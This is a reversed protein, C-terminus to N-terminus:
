PRKIFRTKVKEINYKKMAQQVRDQKIAHRFTSGEINLTKYIHSGKVEGQEMEAFFDIILDATTKKGILKEIPTYKTLKAGEYADLIHRVMEGDNSFVYFNVNEQKKNARLRNTEQIMNVAMDLSKFQEVLKDTYVYRGGSKKQTIDLECGIRGGIVAQAATSYYSPGKHLNGIYIANDAGVYDNSGRGGDFHKFVVDELDDLKKALIPAFEKYTVILTKGDHREVIRRCEAAINDLADLNQTISTKSLGYQDCVHFTVNSCDPKEIPMILNFDRGIYEPDIDGTGDLIFTNFDTIDYHLFYTSVISVRGNFANIEGGYGVAREFSRLVQLKEVGYVEGFNALLKRPLMYGPKLPELKHRGTEDTQEIVGSLENIVDFTKNVYAQRKGTAEHSAQLIDAKLTNLQEYDLRHSVILSPKEDVLLLRRPKNSGRGDRFRGFAGLNDKLAQLEFQKTTMIVVNYQAQTTFQEEYHERTMENEDYGRIVYAYNNRRLLAPQETGDSNIEDALRDMDDLREKVVIAGFTDPHKRVMHRLYTSLMTSKGFGPTAGVIVPLDLVGPQSWTFFTQYAFGVDIGDLEAGYERMTMDWLTTVEEADDNPQLRAGVM